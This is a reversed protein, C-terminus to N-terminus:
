RLYIASPCWIVLTKTDGPSAKLYKLYRPTLLPVLAGQDHPLHVDPSSAPSYGPRYLWMQTLPVRKWTLVEQFAWCQEL